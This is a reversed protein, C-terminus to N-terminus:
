RSLSMPAQDRAEVSLTATRGPFLSSPKSVWLDGSSEEVAFPGSSTDVDGWTRGMGRTLTQWLISYKVLGNEGEDLDAASLTLLVFGRLSDSQIHTQYLSQQFTPAHDNVDLVTVTLSSVGSHKGDWVRLTNRHKSQTERDLPRIVRLRWTYQEAPVAEFHVLEDGDAAVTVRLEPDAGQPIDPDQPTLTLPLTLNLDASVWAGLTVSEQVYGQYNSLTFSPAALNQPLVNVILTAYAPLPHGNDQEAKMVITFGGLGEIPRLLNLRASIPNLTLYSSFNEPSGILLSYLVGARADMPIGRDQDEALIPPTVNLPNVEEPQAHRPIVTQYTVPACDPQGTIPQCPLFAPGLDDGDTITVLLTATSVHRPTPPLARDSAQILLRYNTEREYNLRQQLVVHGSLSVPISFVDSARENVSVEYHRQRFMPPNDNIDRVLVKVEHSVSSGLRLNSCVVVAQLSQINYPPDRDLVRGATYLMVRQLEPILKLWDAGLTGPVSELHLAVTPHPPSASGAIQLDWVVITGNPSEEDITVITVPPGTRNLRCDELKKGTTSTLISIFILIVKM